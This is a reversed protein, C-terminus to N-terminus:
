HLIHKIHKAILEPKISRRYAEIDITQDKVKGFISCFPFEEQNPVLCDSMKQGLSMFGAWPHTACWVTVVRTGLMGALHANASDMSLLCDLTAILKMEEEISSDGVLCLVRDNGKAWAKLKEEEQGRAGFLYLYFNEELSLLRILEQMQEEDYTKSATSAFPAIGIRKISSGGDKKISYFTDGQVEEEKISIPKIEQPVNLGSRRLTQCHLDIMQPLPKRDKAQTALLVKREKRPKRLSVFKTGSTLRLVWRALKTRVVNHLDIVCDYEEKRLELLYSMLGFFSKQKGRTEITKVKLNKPPELLLKSFFPQTLFTFSDEPNAEAVAYLTPILMAVDGMASFRLLLYKAM